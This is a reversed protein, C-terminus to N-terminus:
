AGLTDTADVPSRRDPHGVNPASAILAFAADLEDLFLSTRADTARSEDGSKVMLFRQGDRSVDYSRSFDGGALTYYWACAVERAQQGEM